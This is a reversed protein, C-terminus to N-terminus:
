IHVYIYIYIPIYIHLSATSTLRRRCNHHRRPAASASTGQTFFNTNLVIEKSWLNFIMSSVNKQTLTEELYEIQPAHCNEPLFTDAELSLTITVLFLLLVTVFVVVLM